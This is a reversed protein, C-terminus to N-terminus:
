QSGCYPQVSGKIYIGLTGMCYNAAWCLCPARGMLMPRPKYKPTSSPAVSYPYAPVQYWVQLELIGWISHKRPLLAPSISTAQWTSNSSPRTSTSNSVLLLPSAWPWLPHDEISHLSGKFNPSPNVFIPSHSPLIPPLPKINSKSTTSPNALYYTHSDALPGASSSCYALCTRLYLLYIHM